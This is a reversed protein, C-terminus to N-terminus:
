MRLRGWSFEAGFQRGAMAPAADRSSLIFNKRLRFISSEEIEKGERNEYEEVM